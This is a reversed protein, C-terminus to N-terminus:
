KATACVGGPLQRTQQDQYHTLHRIKAVRKASTSSITPSKRWANRLSRHWQATSSSRFLCASNACVILPSWLGRLVDHVQNLMSACGRPQAAPPHSTLPSLPASAPPTSTKKRWVSSRAPGCSRSPVYTRKLARLLYATAHGRARPQWLLGLAIPEVKFRCHHALLLQGCGVRLRFTQSSFHAQSGDRPKIM